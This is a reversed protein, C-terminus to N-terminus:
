PYAEGTEVAYGLDTASATRNPFVRYATGGIGIKAGMTAGGIRTLHLKSLSGLLSWYNTTDEGADERGVFLNFPLLLNKGNIANLSYTAMDAGVPGNNYGGYSPYNFYTSALSTGDDAFPMYVAKNKTAHMRGYSSSLETGLWGTYSDVSSVRVFFNHNNGTTAYKGLPHRNTASPNAHGSVMSGTFWEGGTWTGIKVSEGFALWSWLGSGTDIWIYVVDVPSKHHIFYYTGSLATSVRSGTDLPSGCLEASVFKSNYNTPHGSQKEWASVGADQGTSLNMALVHDTYTSGSPSDTASTGDAAGFRTENALARFNAYITNGGGGVRQVHLRKGSGVVAAHNLTWSNDTVLFTQIEDLLASASAFAGSKYVLDAM